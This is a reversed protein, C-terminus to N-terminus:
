EKVTWPIFHAAREEDLTLDITGTQYTDLTALVEQLYWLKYDLESTGGLMVEYQEACFLRIDFNKETDVATVQDMLGTGEMEALISLAASMNEEMGETAQANQGIQPATVTFGNMEIVQGSFGDVSSGLIRGETNIYWSSGVDAKVLGAVESEHIKIVVTGPLIRGVSVDQVYPLKAQISGVVAGKNVMLLNDGIELDSAEIIREASYILNGQVEVSHVQFFIAVGLVIAVVVALMILLKGVAGSHDGRHQRNRKGSVRRASHRQNPM